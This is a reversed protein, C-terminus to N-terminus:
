ADLPSRARLLASLALTFALSILMVAVAVLLSQNRIRYVQALLESQPAAMALYFPAGPEPLLSVLAQWTGRATEVPFLRFAAQPKTGGISALVPRGLKDIQPTRQPQITPWPYQATNADALV